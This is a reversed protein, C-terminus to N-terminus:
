IFGIPILLVLGFFFIQHISNLCILLHHVQIHGHLSVNSPLPVVLLYSIQTAEEQPSLSTQVRLCYLWANLDLGLFLWAAEESIHWVSSNIIICM